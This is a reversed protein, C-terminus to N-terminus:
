GLTLGAYALRDMIDCDKRRNSEKACLTICDQVFDHEISPKMVFSALQRYGLESLCDAVTSRYSWIAFDYEGSYDDIDYNM